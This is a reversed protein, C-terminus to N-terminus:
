AHSRASSLKEILREGHFLRAVLIGAEAVAIGGLIDPWVHQKVLLVSAFVLLSFFGQAWAYWKPMKKLGLSGRFCFWSAVCHMSPFLNTPTDSKYILSMVWTTFNTVEVPPRVFTTPYALLIIMAIIKSSLEGSVFRCCHVRSDRTIVIYAVVWQVYALVYILIFAPIRPLADDLRTSIMHLDSRHSELAKPIYYCLFNFLIVLVLPKRAYRPILRDYLDLIRKMM